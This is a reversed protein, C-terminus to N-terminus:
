KAGDPLGVGGGVFLCGVEVSSLRRYLFARSLHPHHLCLARACFGPM